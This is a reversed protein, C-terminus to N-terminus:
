AGSKRLGEASHALEEINIRSLATSFAQEAQALAPADFKWAPQRAHLDFAEIGEPGAVYFLSGLRGLWDVATLRREHRFLESGSAADVFVIRSGHFIAAVDNPTGPACEIPPAIGPMPGWATNRPISSTRLM